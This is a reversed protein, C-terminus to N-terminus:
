KTEEIKIIESYGKAYHYPSIQITEGANLNSVTHVYTIGGIYIDELKTKYYLKLNKIPRDTQNTIKLIGMTVDCISVGWDYWGYEDITQWGSCSTVDKSNHRKRSKELILVKAGPPITDAEFVLDQEERQMIVETKTIGVDGTNHLLLATVNVVEQDSGDELYPGDYSAVGEAVLTTGTIEYPFQIIESRSVTVEGGDFHMMNLPETHQFVPTAAGHAVIYVDKLGAFCLIMASVIVGFSVICLVIRRMCFRGM